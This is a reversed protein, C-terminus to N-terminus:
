LKAMRWGTVKGHVYDKGHTSRAACPLSTKTTRHRVVIIPQVAADSKGTTITAVIEFEYAICTLWPHSHRKHAFYSHTARM